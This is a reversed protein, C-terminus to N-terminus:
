RASYRKKFFFFILFYFLIFHFSLHNSISNPLSAIQHQVNVRVDLLLHDKSNDIYKLKYDECTIQNQDDFQFGLFYPKTTECILSYDILQQQDDDDDDDRNGDNLLKSNVGCSLCSEKRKMLKIVQFHIDMMDVNLLKGAM